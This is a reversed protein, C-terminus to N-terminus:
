GITSSPSLASPWRTKVWIQPASSVINIVLSRLAKAAWLAAHAVEINQRQAALQQNNLEMGAVVEDVTLDLKLPISDSIEFQDPFGM